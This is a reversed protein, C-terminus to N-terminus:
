WRTGPSEGVDDVGAATKEREMVFLPAEGAVAESSKVIGKPPM